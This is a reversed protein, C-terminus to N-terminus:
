RGAADARGAQGAACRAAAGIEARMATMPVSMSAGDRTCGRVRSGPRPGAPRRGALGGHRAAAGTPSAAWTRGPRDPRRPGPVRRRGGRGARGRGGPCDSALRPAGFAHGRRALSKRPDGPPQGGPGVSRRAHERRGPRDAAGIRGARRGRPAAARRRRAAAHDARGRAPYEGPPMGACAAADTVLCVRGPAAAFALTCNPRRVHHTDMILGSTLRPDALAQGAVVPSAPSSRRSRTSCPPHGDPGRGRRGGRGAGRDRRQAWASWWARAPWSASRPWGGTWRPPWRSWGSWARGRPWCSTWRGPPRRCSGTRTTRWGGGPRSSRGKWICASCGRPRAV